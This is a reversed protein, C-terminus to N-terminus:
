ARPLGAALLGDALRDVFSPRFPWAARAAEVTLDPDRRRIARVARRASDTAGAHVAAAAVVRLAWFSGPCADVGDQAWRAARDYRAAHFHACAIGICTLHRIPELPMLELALDLEAIAAAPDGQYASLWGRRVRAWSAGPDLALARSVMADARELDRGLTVAGAALTLVLPEDPALTVAQEVLRAAVADDDARADPFRQVHRQRLCWAAMAKPLAYDPALAQAGAVADLALACEGAAVAFVSPLARVSLRKAEDRGLDVEGRNAQTRRLTRSPLEGFQRRYAAAFRGPQDFGSALAVESVRAGPREALLRARANALRIRRAIVRPSAGLFRLFHAQLTRRRVGAVSALTDVDIPESAHARLWDLARVVDAPVPSGPRLTADSPDNRAPNSETVAV